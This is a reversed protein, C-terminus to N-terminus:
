LMRQISCNCLVPGPRTEGSTFRAVDQTIGYGHSEGDALASFFTFFLPTLLTSSDAEEALRAQKPTSTVLISIDLESVKPIDLRGAMFSGLTLGPGGNTASLPTSCECRAYATSLHPYRHARDTSFQDMSGAFCSSSATTTDKAIGVQCIQTASAEPM